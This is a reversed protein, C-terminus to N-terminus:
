QVQQILLCLSKLPSSNGLFYFGFSFHKVMLHFFFFILDKSKSFEVSFDIYDNLRFHGISFASNM